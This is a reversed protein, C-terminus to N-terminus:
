NHSAGGIFDRIESITHVLGQVRNLADGEEDRLLGQLDDGWIKGVTEGAHVRSDQDWDEGYMTVDFDTEPRAKMNMDRITQWRRNITFQLVYGSGKWFFRYINKITVSNLKTALPVGAPLRITPYTCFDSCLGQLEASGKELYQKVAQSAGKKQDGPLVEIKWDLKRNAIGLSIAEFKSVQASQPIIRTRVLSFRLPQNPKKKMTELETEYRDDDHCCELVYIPIVDASTATQNDMPVCPSDPGRIRDLVAEITLNTPAKGMRRDLQGRARPHTVMSEFKELTFEGTKYTDLLYCGLSIRLVLSRYLGSAKELAECLDKSFTQNSKDSSLGSASGSTDSMSQLVGRARKTDGIIDLSIRFDSAGPITPPEVFIVKDNASHGSIHAAAMRQATAVLALADEETPAEIRIYPVTTERFEITAEKNGEKLDDHVAKIVGRIADPEGSVIFSAVANKPSKSTSLEQKSCLANLKIEAIPSLPASLPASVRSSSEM